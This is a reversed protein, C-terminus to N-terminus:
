DLNFKVKLINFAKYVLSDYEDIIKKAKYFRDKKRLHNIAYTGNKVTFEISKETDIYLTIIKKDKTGIISFDYYDYNVDYITLTGRKIDDM